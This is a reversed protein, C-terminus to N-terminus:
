LTFNNNSVVTTKDPGFLTHYEFPIRNIMDVAKIPDGSELYALAAERMATIKTISGMGLKDNYEKFSTSQLCPLIFAQKVNRTILLNSTIRLAADHQSYRTTAYAYMVWDEETVTTWYLDESLPDHNANDAICKAYESVGTTHVIDGVVYNHVSNWEPLDLVIMSYWGDTSLPFGTNESLDARYPYSLRKSGYSTDINAEYTFITIDYNLTVVSASSKILTKTVIEIDFTVEEAALQTVPSTIELKGVTQLQMDVVNWDFLFKRVHDAPIDKNVSVKLLMGDNELYATVTDKPAPITNGSEQYVQNFIEVEKVKM